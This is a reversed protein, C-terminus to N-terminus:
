RHSKNSPQEGAQGDHGMVWLHYHTASQSRYGIHGM